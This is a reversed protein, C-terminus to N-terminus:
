AELELESMIVFNQRANPLVANLAQEAETYSNFRRPNGGPLQLNERRVVVFKEDYSHIPSVAGMGARSYERSLVSQYVVGARAEKIVNISIVPLKLTETSSNLYKVEYDYQFGMVAGYEMRNSGIDLSVGGQFKEFSPTSLKENDSINFYQSRAFNETVATVPTNGNNISLSFRNVGDHLTAEGFKDINIGLPVLRQKFILQCNPMLVLASETSLNKVTIGSIMTGPISVSEWNADIETEKLLEQKLYAISPQRSPLEDAWSRDIQEKHKCGLIEVTVEGRVHWPGPGTLLGHITVAGLDLKGLKVSAVLGMGAQFSFPSLKFLADFWFQGNVTLGGAKCWLGIHAGFQVTNATVALYVNAGIKLENQDILSLTLRRLNNLSPPAEKYSPHFGGASFIFLPNEGWSILMAFDGSITVSVIKSDYLSAQLSFEKKAFDLVGFFIMNLSIVPNSTDPLGVRIVGLMGIRVPDPVEIIIGIEASIVTPTGWGIKGMPGFVFNGVQVPYVDAATNVIAPLDATPPPFLLLSAQGTRVMENLGNVNVTRNYGFLGGVGNLTFGFSLQIPQFDATIMVFLSFGKENNPLKTNIIAIARFTFLNKFSLVLGGRYEGEEHNIKLFGGGTIAGASLILGAGTPPKFKFDYDLAGLTKEAEQINKPLNKLFTFEQKLGVEEITVKLPGLAAKIDTALSAAIGSAKDLKRLQLLLGKVDIPGLKIHTNLKIDLKTSGKFSIGNKASFIVNIDFTAKLSSNPLLTSIFSDAGTTSIVLEVTKCSLDIGIDGDSDKTYAYFLLSIDTVTLKTGGNLSFLEYRKVTGDVTKYQSLLLSAKTQSSVGIGESYGKVDFTNPPDILGTLKIIQCADISIKPTLLWDSSLKIDQSDSVKTYPIVFASVTNKGKIEGILNVGLEIAPNQSDNWYLPVEVMKDSTDSGLIPQIKDSQLVEKVPILLSEYGIKINEQLAVLNFSVLRDKEIFYLTKILTSPEFLIQPIRSWDVVKIKTCPKQPDPKTESLVGCLILFIFIKPYRTEFHKYTLYNILREAFHEKVDSIWKNVIQYEAQSVSKLNDVVAQIADLAKPIKKIAEVLEKADEIVVILKKLFGLEDSVDQLAKLKESLENTKEAIKDTDQYAKLLEDFVKAVANTVAQISSDPFKLGLECCLWKLQEIDKIKSLPLFANVVEAILLDALSVPKAKLSKFEVYGNFEIM